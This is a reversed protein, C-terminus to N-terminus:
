LNKKVLEALKSEIFEREKQLKTLRDNSDIKIAEIIGGTKTILKPEGDSAFQFYWEDGKRSLYFLQKDSSQLYFGEKLTKRGVDFPLIIPFHIGAM